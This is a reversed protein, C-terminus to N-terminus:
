LRHSHLFYEVTIRAAKLSTATSINELSIHSPIIQLYFLVIASIIPIILRELIDERREGRKNIIYIKKDTKDLIYNM